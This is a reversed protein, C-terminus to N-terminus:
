RGRRMKGMHVHISGLPREIGMQTGYRRQHRRKEMDRVVKGEYSAKGRM